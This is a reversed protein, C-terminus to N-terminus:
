FASVSRAGFPGALAGVLLGTGFGWAGNILFVVLLVTVNGNAAIPGGQLPSVIFLAVISTLVGGFLFATLWYTAGRPFRHHVFVYLIGWVGGWFALSLTTPVGFPATLGMPFAGFPSLNIVYLLALTFQHFTLTALFGASFGLLVRRLPDLTNDALPM